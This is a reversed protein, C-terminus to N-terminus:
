KKDEREKNKIRCVEYVRNQWVTEGCNEPRKEENRRIVAYDGEAPAERRIGYYNEGTLIQRKASPIEMDTKFRIDNGGVAYKLASDFCELKWLDDSDKGSVFFVAPRDAVSAMFEALERRDTGEERSRIRGNQWASWLMLPVFFAALLRRDKVNVFLYATCFVSPLYMYWTKYRDPFCAIQLYFVVYYVIILCGSLVGEAVAGNEEFGRRLVNRVFVALAAAALCLEAANIALLTPLEQHHHRVYAGDTLLNSLLLYGASFLLMSWFLIYEAPMGAVTKFPSLFSRLTIKGAWVKALVLYLLIGFYVFINTEKTYIALNAWLAFWLLQRLGHRGDYKQLATLSLLVFILTNQESYVIGKVWFVAPLFNVAALMFLRRAAPVFVFFRYLLWLCLAQKLLVWGGILAYHHTIGYIINHDIGAAPNFRMSTFVPQLGRRMDLINNVVMQDYNGFVSLELSFLNLAYLLFSFALAAAGALESKDKRNFFFRRDGASFRYEGAFFFKVAMCNLVIVAAVCAAYLGFREYGFYFAFNNRINAAVDSRLWPIEIM